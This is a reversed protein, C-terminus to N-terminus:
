IRSSSGDFSDTINALLPTNSGTIAIFYDGDDPVVFEIFSDLGNFNNNTSVIEYASNLIYMFSDLTSSPSLVQADVDIKLVQSFSLDKLKYFDFDGTNLSAAGYQGDGIVSSVIYKTKGTVVIETAKLVDGNDESTVVVEERSDRDLIQFQGALSFSNGLRRGTGFHDIHQATAFTNNPESEILVNTTYASFVRERKKYM